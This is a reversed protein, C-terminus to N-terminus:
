TVAAAAVALPPAEQPKEVLETVVVVVGEAAITSGKRMVIKRKNDNKCFFLTKMGMLQFFTSLIKIRRLLLFVRVTHNTLNHSYHPTMM